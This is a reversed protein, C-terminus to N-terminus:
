FARPAVTADRIRVDMLFGGLPHSRTETCLTSTAGWVTTCRSYRGSTSRQLTAQRLGSCTARQVRHVEEGQLEDLQAPSPWAGDYQVGAIGDLTRTAERWAHLEAYSFPVLASGDPLTKTILLLSSEDKVPLASLLVTAAVNTATTTAGIAIAFTVIVLAAFGPRRAISRM